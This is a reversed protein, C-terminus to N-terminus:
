SHHQRRRVHDNIIKRMAKEDEQYASSMIGRYPLILKNPMDASPATDAALAKRQEHRAFRERVTKNSYGNNVLM